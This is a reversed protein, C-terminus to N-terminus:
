GRESTIYVIIAYIKGFTFLLHLIIQSIEAYFKRNIPDYGM